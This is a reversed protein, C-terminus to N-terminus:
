HLLEASVLLLESVNNMADNFNEFPNPYTAWMADFFSTEFAEATQSVLDVLPNDEQDPPITVTDASVQRTLLSRKAFIPVQYFDDIFWASFANM